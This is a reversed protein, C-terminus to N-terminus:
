SSYKMLTLTIEKVKINKCLLTGFTRYVRFLVTGKAKMVFFLPNIMKMSDCNKSSFKHM